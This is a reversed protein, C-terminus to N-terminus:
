LATGGRLRSTTPEFVMAGAKLDEITYGQDNVSQHTPTSPVVTYSQPSNSQIGSQKMLRSFFVFLCIFASDSSFTAISYMEMEGSSCSVIRCGLM